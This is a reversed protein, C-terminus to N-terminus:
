CDWNPAPLWLAKMLLTASDSLFGGRPQETAERRGVLGDGRELFHHAFPQPSSGSYKLRLGTRHAEQSQQLGFVASLCHFAQRPGSREDESPPFPGCGTCDQEDPVGVPKYPNVAFSSGLQKSRQGGFM